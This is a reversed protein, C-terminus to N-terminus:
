TAPISRRRTNRPAAAGCRGSSAPAVAFRRSHRARGDDRDALKRMGVATAKAVPVRLTMKDKEFTIVFLELKMGAVDQEEIDIIKGVGHAPYVISEGTRFGHRQVAKRTAM